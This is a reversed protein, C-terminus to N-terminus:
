ERGPQLLYDFGKLYKEEPTEPAALWPLYRSRWRSLLDVAVARRELEVAARCYRWLYDIALLRFMLADTRELGIRDIAALEKSCSRMVGELGDPGSDDSDFLPSVVNSMPVKARAAAALLGRLDKTLRLEEAKEDGPSQAWARKLELTRAVVENAAHVLSELTAEARPLPKAEERLIEEAIIDNCLGICEDCIYVTPGAILKRVERQSKGCFSCSLDVTHEKAEMTEEM